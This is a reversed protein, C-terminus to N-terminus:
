EVYFTDIINKGKETLHYKRRVDDKEVWDNGVWKQIYDRHYNVADSQKKSGDSGPEDRIWLGKERLEKVM